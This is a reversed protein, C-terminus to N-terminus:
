ALLREVAILGNAMCAVGANGVTIEGAAYLGEIPTGQENVVQYDDTVALGDRTIHASWTRPCAYFPAALVPSTVTFVTRGFDTDNFTEAYGNFRNITDTFNEPDVEIQAALGELTDARMILGRDLVTQEIEETQFNVGDVFGGSNKDSILYVIQNEQEMIAHSLAYRDLMENVFREGKQNVLPGDAGAMGDMYGNIGAFPFLMQGHPISVFQGGLGQAMVIGDGTHGYCNTTGISQNPKWDWETNYKRLMDPNGSYGGTALIVAKGARATYVTGDDCIGKVGTVKGNETLLESAPTQFLIDIPLSGKRITDEYLDFFGQGAPTSPEHSWRPWYFGVIPMLSGWQFGLDTLWDNLEDAEPMTKLWNDLDGGMNMYFDVAHFETSDFVKTNGVAYYAEYDAQIRDLLVPDIGMDRAKQMTLAFNQAFGQNMDMRLSEPALPYELLGGSVLTNGGMSSTKEFVVVKAGKVTAAIAATMGSGGAGVIVIDADLDVTDSSKEMAPASKLASTDGDAQTVCDAVASLIALSTLTAGTVTDVALSQFEVIQGPIRELATDSIYKTEHHELISVSEIASSSFVTELRLPARKGEAQAVYSGATYQAGVSPGTAKPGCGPLGLLAATGAATASLLLFQRRGIPRQGTSTIHGM